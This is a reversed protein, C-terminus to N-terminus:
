TMDIDISIVRIEGEALPYPRTRAGTLAPPASPHHKFLAMSLHPALIKKM